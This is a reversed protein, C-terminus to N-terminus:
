EKTDKMEYGAQLVAQRALIDLSDIFRYGYDGNKLALPLETCGLIFAEAGEEEMQKLHKELISVDIPNGAKIQDYIVKMVAEQGEDDPYIAEIGHKLLEGHYIGMKCTGTTALVGVKHYGCKVCERATETIMNMVPVNLEKQILPYFYHSTNCPILILEAGCEILKRGSECIRVAPECSGKLISETRDPIKTNNDIIIHIHESDANADTYDVIKQFLLVTAAPGMGGIIGLTKRFSVDEKILM